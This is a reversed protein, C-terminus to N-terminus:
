FDERIGIGCRRPKSFVIGFPHGEPVFHYARGYSDVGTPSLLAGAKPM